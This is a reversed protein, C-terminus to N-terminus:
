DGHLYLFFTNPPYTFLPSLGAGAYGIPVTCLVFHLWASLVPTLM